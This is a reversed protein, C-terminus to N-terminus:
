RSKKGGRYGSSPGVWDLSLRITKYTLVGAFVTMLFGLVPDQDGVIATLFRGIPGGKFWWMFVSALFAIAPVAVLLIDVGTPSGPDRLFDRAELLLERVDQKKLVFWQRPKSVIKFLRSTVYWVAVASFVVGALASVPHEVFRTALQDLWPKVRELPLQELPLRQLLLM